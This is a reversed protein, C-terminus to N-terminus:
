PLRLLNQRRLHPDHVNQMIAGAQDWLWNGPKQSLGQARLYEACVRAFDEIEEVLSEGDSAATTAISTLVQNLPDALLPLSRALRAAHKYFPMFRGNVLYVFSLAAEAFRALAFFAAANEGRALSRPYNYQGAQAMQLCRAALKTLVLERPYYRLLEARIQGFRTEHDEFIEGNTACALQDEPIALWELSTKPVPGGLFFRYFRETALPGVRGLRQEPALRSAFGAFGQPLKAFAAELKAQKTTLLDEDLWLCFCPGFDHDRSQADDLGFCESGEGVLGVCAQELLEGLEKQLLPRCHAYFDRALTLGNM